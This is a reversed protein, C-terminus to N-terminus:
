NTTRYPLVLHLADESGNPKIIIPSMPGNFGVFTEESDIVKLADLVYKSNFAVKLQEGIFDKVPLQELVKGIQTSSSMIEIGESGDEEITALRVINTKEERSLLYARDIADNILKTDIVVETKFEHPIIKSTDPFTGELLRSYFLINGFRFLAQNDAILIDVPASKDPLVKALDLLSKGAIIINSLRLDSEIKISHSALRHRDTARFQLKGDSLAMLVGNLVPTSENTSVAFATSNILEVLQDSPIALTDTKRINPLQPFEEPDMGAMDIESKGSVIRANLGNVEVVVEDKPLKKVIEILFKAPLVISGTTQVEGLTGIATDLAIRSQISLTQDSATLTVADHDATVKIGGLIPITTRGSIAKSVHQIATNLADRKITFKM